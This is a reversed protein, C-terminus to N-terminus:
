AIIFLIIVAAILAVTGVSLTVVTGRNFEMKKADGSAFGIRRMANSLPKYILMALASNLLAKSFNFPLLIGPIMNIVGASDLPIGVQAMYLPTVFINLLLMVGTTVVIASFFGILAGNISKMKRYILCATLSFVASSVFNMIFGYWGTSSITVLELFAALLSIIVSAIPGYIFSAMAIVADKFDLSLFGQIAPIIQCVLAIVYALASFVAIGVLRKTDLATRQQNDKNSM